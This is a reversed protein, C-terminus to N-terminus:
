ASSMAALSAYIVDDPARRGVRSTTGAPREGQPDLRSWDDVVTRHAIRWERDRRDLRDVYRGARIRTHPVGDYDVTAVVVFYSESVASDGDLEILVNTILHQTERMSEAAALIDDPITEGAMTLAGYDAVADPHFVGDLMARDRRDVGRCYRLLQEHIEQKDVLARLADSM